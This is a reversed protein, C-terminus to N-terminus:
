VVNFNLSSKSKLAWIRKQFAGLIYKGLLSTLSLTWHRIMQSNIFKDPSQNQVRKENLLYKEFHDALEPSVNHCNHLRVNKYKLWQLLIFDLNEDLISFSILVCPVFQNQAKTTNQHKSRPNYLLPSLFCWFLVQSFMCVTWWNLVYM